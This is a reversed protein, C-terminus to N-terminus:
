TNLCVPEYTFLFNKFTLVKSQHVNVVYFMIKHRMKLPRINVRYQTQGQPGAEKPKLLVAIPLQM